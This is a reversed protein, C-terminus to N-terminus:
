TNRTQWKAKRREGNRFKMRDWLRTGPLPTLFVANHNDVGYARKAQSTFATSGALDPRPMGEYNPTSLNEDM